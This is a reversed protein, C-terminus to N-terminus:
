STTKILNYVYQIEKVQAGGTTEVQFQFERGEGLPTGDAEATAETLHEGTANTDAIISVFSGGDVAYKLATTGSTAGTYAIRVAVLQKDKYRDAVPMSPNITTRYTSTSTYSVAEQSLLTIKTRMLKFAGSGSTFATWLVDGIGSIGSFGSGITSGNDMYRDKTVIYQGSKNKAVIYVCDDNGMGFYLRGGNKYKYPTTNVISALSLTKITEVSGGAYGRVYLKRTLNTNFTSQSAMVAILNNNLNEIMLLDGEGFDVVGQLTNLTGDRGWLYTVSNGSGRLPRMAIALYAGYDTMSTTEFGTPLITTYSTFTTGDWKAIVNGVSFYLINDEPHVFPRCRFTASTSFSGINTATGSASLSYAIYSGAGNYVLAIATDKYVVLSGKQYTAAAAINLTFPTAGSVDVLSSKLYFTLKTSSNSEYGTGVIYYTGGVNAVEVSDIQIDNMDLGTITEAVSDGYPILRHPNSLIDFNLSKENEDTNTTRLDEAAGGDFKNLIVQTTM